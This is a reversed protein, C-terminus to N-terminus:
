EYEQGNVEGFITLLISGGLREPESPGDSNHVNYYDAHKNIVLTHLTM